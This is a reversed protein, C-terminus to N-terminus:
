GAGAHGAAVSLAFIIQAMYYLPLGWLRNIAGPAVFRNRAVAVDSIAFMVAGLAPLWMGSAGSAAIALACMAVIATVYAGVAGRYFAKLYNWLWAVVAVGLCSMAAFGALLATAAIPRSAFAIAYAVHALLFSALGFLFIRSKQSLLFVDGAWSLALGLLIWQGYSSATAGLQLALALFATSAAVKLLAKGAKWGRHECFLLAACAALCAIITCSTATPM